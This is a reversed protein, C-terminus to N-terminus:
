RMHGLITYTCDNDGTTKNECNGFSMDGNYWCRRGAQMYM